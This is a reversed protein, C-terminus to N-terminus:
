SHWGQFKGNTIRAYYNARKYAVMEMYPSPSLYSNFHFHGQLSLTIISLFLFLIFKTHNNLKYSVSSIILSLIIELTRYFMM